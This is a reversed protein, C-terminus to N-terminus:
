VLCVVSHLWVVESLKKQKKTTKYKLLIKVIIHLFLGALSCRWYEMLECAFMCYRSVFFCVAIIVNYKLKRKEGFSPATQNEYCEDRCSLQMRCGSSNQCWPYFFGFPICDFYSEKLFEKASYNNKTFININLYFSWLSRIWVDERFQLSVQNLDTVWCM